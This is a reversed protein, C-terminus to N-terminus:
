KRASVQWRSVLLASDVSKTARYVVEEQGSRDANKVFWSYLGSTQEAAYALRDGKASWVPDFASGDFTFRTSIGRAIEFIEIHADEAKFTELAVYKGDPSIAPIRYVGPEGFKDLKNGSRDLWNMRGDVMGPVGVPIASGGTGHVLVGTNSASFGQFPVNEAIPVAEGIPAFRQVDVSQAMLTASNTGGRLFLIYGM